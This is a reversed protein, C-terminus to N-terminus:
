KQLIGTKLECVLEQLQLTVNYIEDVQEYFEGANEFVEEIEGGIIGELTTQMEDLRRKMQLLDNNQQTKLAEM